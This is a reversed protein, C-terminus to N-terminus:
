RMTGKTHGRQCIGDGRIRGGGAYGKIRGGKARLEYDTDEERTRVRPSPKKKSAQLIPKAEEMAEARGKERAARAAQIRKRDAAGRAAARAAQAEPERAAQIGKRSTAGRM